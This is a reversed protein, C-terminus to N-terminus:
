HLYYYGLLFRLILKSDPWGQLVYILLLLLLADANLYFFLRELSVKSYATCHFIVFNHNNLSTQLFRPAESLHDHSSLSSLRSSFIMPPILMAFPQMSNCSNVHFNCQALEHLRSCAEFNRWSSLDLLPASALSLAPFEHDDLVRCIGNARKM